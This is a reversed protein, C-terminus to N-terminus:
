LKKSTSVMISVHLGNKLYFSRQEQYSGNKQITFFMKERKESIGEQLFLKEM